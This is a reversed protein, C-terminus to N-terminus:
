VSSSVMQTMASPSPASDSEPMMPPSFVPQESAVASTSMSDASHSGILIACVPRLSPM